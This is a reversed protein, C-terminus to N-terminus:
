SGNWDVECLHPGGIGDEHGPPERGVTEGVEGDLTVFRGGQSPAVMEEREVRM